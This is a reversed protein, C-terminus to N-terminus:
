ILSVRVLRSWAATLCLLQALKCFGAMFPVVSLVVNCSIGNPICPLGVLVWLLDAVRSIRDYCIYLVGSDFKSQYLISGYQCSVLDAQARLDGLQLPGPDSSQWPM